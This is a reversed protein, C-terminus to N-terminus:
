LLLEPFFSLRSKYSQSLFEVSHPLNPPYWLWEIEQTEIEFFSVLKMEKYM